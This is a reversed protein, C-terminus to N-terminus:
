SARVDRPQRLLWREEPRRAYRAAARAVTTPSLLVAKNMQPAPGDAGRNQCAGIGDLGREASWVPRPRSLM